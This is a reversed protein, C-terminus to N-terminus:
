GAPQIQRRRRLGAAGGLAILSAGIVVAAGISASGL